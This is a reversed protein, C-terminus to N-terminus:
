EYPSEFGWCSQQGRAQKPKVFWPQFPSSTCVRPLPSARARPQEQEIGAFGENLSSCCGTARELPNKPVTTWTSGALAGLHWLLWSAPNPCLPLGGGHSGRGGGGTTGPGPSLTPGPLSPGQALSFRGHVRANCLRRGLPFSLGALMSRQFHWFLPETVARVPPAGLGPGGLVARRGSHCLMCQFGKIKPLSISACISARAARTGQVTDWGWALGPLHQLGLPYESILAAAAGAPFQQLLLAWSCGVFGSGQFPPTSLMM